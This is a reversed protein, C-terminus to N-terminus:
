PAVLKAALQEVFWDATRGINREDGLHTPRGRGPWVEHGAAGVLQFPLARAPAKPGRVYFRTGAWHEFFVVHQDDPLGENLANAAPSGHGKAEFLIQGDRTVFIQHGLDYVPTAEPVEYAAERWPRAGRVKILQQATDLQSLRATSVRSLFSYVAKSVRDDQARLALIRADAQSQEFTAIANAHENQYRAHEVTHAVADSLGGDDSVSGM